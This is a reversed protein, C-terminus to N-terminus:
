GGHSDPEAQIGRLLLRRVTPYADELRGPQEALAWHTVVENVAGFWATAAVGTDLPPIANQAVADDLHVRILDAFDGRIQIMRANFEPGAGLAEVLFLRALRRHSGFTELVVHLAAEARQLPDQRTAVAAEVRERLMNALRDLLALFIAQKNPFHFYV